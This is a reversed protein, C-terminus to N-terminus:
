TAGGVIVPFIKSNAGLAIRYRSESLVKRARFIVSAFYRELKFGSWGLRESTCVPAPMFNLEALSNIKVIGNATAQKEATGSMIIGSSTELIGASQKGSSRRERGVDLSSYRPMFNTMEHKLEEFNDRAAVGTCNRTKARLKEDKKAQM